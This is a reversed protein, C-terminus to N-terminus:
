IEPGPLAACGELTVDQRHEQRLLTWTCFYHMAIQSYCRHLGQQIQCCYTRRQTTDQICYHKTRKLHPLSFLCSIITIRGTLPSRVKSVGAKNRTATELLAEAKVFGHFENTHASNGPTFLTGTVESFLAPFSVSIPHSNAQHSCTFHCQSSKLQKIGEWRVRCHKAAYSSKILMSRSEQWVLATMWTCINITHGSAPTQALSHHM